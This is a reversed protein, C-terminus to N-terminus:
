RLIAQSGPNSAAKVGRETATSPAEVFSRPPPFWNMQDIFSM